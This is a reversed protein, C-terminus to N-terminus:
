CWVWHRFALSGGSIRVSVLVGVGGLAPAGARARLRSSSVSAMRVPFSTFGRRQLLCSGVCLFGWLIRASPVPFSPTAPLRAGPRTCLGCRREAGRRRGPPGCPGARPGFCDSRRLPVACRSRSRRASPPPRNARRPAWPRRPRVRGERGWAGALGPAAVRPRWNEARDCSGANQRSERDRDKM